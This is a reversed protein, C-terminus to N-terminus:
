KSRRVTKYIKIASMLVIIFAILGVLGWVWSLSSKVTALM